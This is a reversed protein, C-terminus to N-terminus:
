NAFHVIVVICAAMLAIMVSFFIIWGIKAGKGKPEEEVLVSNMYEEVEEDKKEFEEEEM